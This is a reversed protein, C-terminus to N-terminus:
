CFSIKLILLVSKIIQYKEQLDDEKESKQEVNIECKEIRKEGRANTTYYSDNKDLSYSIGGFLIKDSYEWLINYLSVQPLIKSVDKYTNGSIEILYNYYYDDTYAWETEHSFTFYFLKSDSLQFIFKVEQINIDIQIDVRYTKMNFKSLSNEGGIAIRGDIM